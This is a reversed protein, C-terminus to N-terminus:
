EPDGALTYHQIYADGRAAWTIRHGEYQAEAAYSELRALAGEETDYGLPPIQAVYPPHQSSSVHTLLGTREQLEHGTHYGSQLLRGDEMVDQAELYYFWNRM